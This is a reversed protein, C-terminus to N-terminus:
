KLDGALKDIKEFFMEESFSGNILIFEGYDIEKLLRIFEKVDRTPINEPYYDPHEPEICESLKFDKKM